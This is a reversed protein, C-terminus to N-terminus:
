GFDSWGDSRSPRATDPGGRWLGGSRLAPVAARLGGLGIIKPWGHSRRTEARGGLPAGEGPQFYTDWSDAMRTKRPTLRDLHHAITFLALFVLVATAVM